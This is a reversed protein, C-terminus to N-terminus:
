SGVVAELVDDVPIIMPKKIESIQRIRLQQKPHALLLLEQSVELLQLNEQAAAEHLAALFNKQKKPIGKLPKVNVFVPEGAKATAILDTTEVDGAIAMFHLPPAVVEKKVSSNVIVPTKDKSFLKSAVAGTVLGVGGLIM